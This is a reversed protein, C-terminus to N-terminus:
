YRHLSSDVVGRKEAEARVAERAEAADEETWTSDRRAQAIADLHEVMRARAESRDPGEPEGVRGRLRELRGRIHRSM